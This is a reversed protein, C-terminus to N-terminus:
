NNEETKSFISKILAAPAKSASEGYNVGLPQNQRLKSRKKENASEDKLIENTDRKRRKQIHSQVKTQEILHAIEENTRKAKLGREFIM